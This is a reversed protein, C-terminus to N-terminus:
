EKEANGAAEALRLSEDVRALDRRLLMEVARETREHDARSSGVSRLLRETLDGDFRAWWSTHKLRREGLLPRACAACLLQRNVVRLVEAAGGCQPCGLRRHVGARGARKDVLAITAFVPIYDDNFVCVTFEGLELLEAPVDRLRLEKLLPIAPLTM